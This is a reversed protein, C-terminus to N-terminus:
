FMRQRYREWTAEKMAMIKGMVEGLAHRQHAIPDVPRERALALSISAAIFTFSLKM